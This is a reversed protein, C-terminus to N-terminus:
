QASPNLEGLVSRYQAITPNTATLGELASEFAALAAKARDEGAFAKAHATEIASAQKNLEIDFKKALTASASLASGRLGAGAYTIELRDLLARRVPDKQAAKYVQWASDWNAHVKKESSRKGTTKAFEADLGAALEGSLTKSRLAEIESRAVSNDHKALLQQRFKTKIEEKFATLSADAKGLWDRPQERAAKAIPQYVGSFEPAVTPLQEDIHQLTFRAIREEINAIETFKDRVAQKAKARDM